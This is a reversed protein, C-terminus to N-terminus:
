EDDDEDPEAAAPKRFPPTSPKSFPPTSAPQVPAAPTFDRLGGLMADILGIDIGPYAAIMMPRASDASLVGTAVDNVIAKMAETQIGSLAEKQVEVGSAGPTPDKTGADGALKDLGPTKGAAQSKLFTGLDELRALALKRADTASIKEQAAIEEVHSTMLNALKVSLAQQEQLINEDTKVMRHKILLKADPPLKLATRQTANYVTAILRKLSRELKVCRRTQRRVQSTFGLADARRASGTVISAQYAEPRLYRFQSLYYMGTEIVRIYKEIPPNLTIPTITLDDGPFIMAGSATDKIEDPLDGAEEGSVAVKSHTQSRVVYKLHSIAIITAIQCSAVDQAVPPLYGSDLGIGSTASYVPRVRKTGALPIVGTPNSFDPAFLGVHTGDPLVKYAMDRRLVIQTVWPSVMGLANPRQVVRCLIVESADEINSRAEDDDFTISITEFPLFPHLRMRGKADPWCGVLYSQQLTGAQELELLLEDVELEEYIATFRDAVQHSVDPFERLPEEDYPGAGDVAVRYALPVYELKIKDTYQFVAALERPMSSFNFCRFQELQLSDKKDQYMLAPNLSRFMNSVATSTM